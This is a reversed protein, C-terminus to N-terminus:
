ADDLSRVMLPATTCISAAQRTALIEAPATARDVRTFGLHTFFSEASTTLLFAEAAGHRMAEDMLGAVIARGVGRGRASPLVVVSRLLAYRGHPEYGGYGVVRGDDDFRFFRRGGDAIDETPLNADILADSLGRDAGSVAHRRLATDYARDAAV